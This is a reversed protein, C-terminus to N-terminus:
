RAASRITINGNVTELEVVPGGGNLRIESRIVDPNKTIEPEVGPILCRITYDDPEADGRLEIRARITLRAGEPVGLAIDGGATQATGGGVEGGLDLSIDGGATKARIEGRLSGQFRVDGGSTRLDLDYDAPVTLEFRLSSWHQNRRSPHFEVRVTEGAQEIILDDALEEPLGAVSVQVGGQGPTVVIDGGAVDAVLSGGPGAPFRKVVPQPAAAASIAALTAAALLM